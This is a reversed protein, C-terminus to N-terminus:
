AIKLGEMDQLEERLFDKHKALKFNIGDETYGIKEQRYILYPPSVRDYMLIMKRSIGVSKFMEPKNTLGDFAEKISPFNKRMTDILGPQTIIVGWGYDMGSFTPPSVYVTREDLGQRSHRTPIRSTFVSEFVGTKLDKIQVYGLKSGITKFDWLPDMISASKSGESQGRPSIPLEIYQLMVKNKSGSAGVIFVPIGDYMVVSSELKQRAEEVTDYM